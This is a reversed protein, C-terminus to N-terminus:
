GAMCRVGELVRLSRLLASESFDERIEIEHGCELRLRFSFADRKGMGIKGVHVLAVTPGESGLTALKKKWYYFGGKSIGVRRCYEAMSLGSKAQAKIHAKWFSQGNKITKGNTGDLGTKGM